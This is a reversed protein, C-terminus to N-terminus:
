SSLAGVRVNQKLGMIHYFSNMPVIEASFKSLGSLIIDGDMAQRYDVYRNAGTLVKETPYYVLVRSSNIKTVTDFCGVAYKGSPSYKSYQDPTGFIQLMVMSIVTMLFYNYYTLGTLTDFILAISYFIFAIVMPWLHIRTGRYYNNLLMNALVFVYFVAQM